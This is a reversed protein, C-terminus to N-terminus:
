RRPPYWADRAGWPHLRGGPPGPRSGFTPGSGGAMGRERIQRGARLGGRPRPADQWLRWPRYLNAPARHWPAQEDGGAGARTRCLQDVAAAPQRFSPCTRAVRLIRGRCGGTRTTARGVDKSGHGRETRSNYGSWYPVSLARITRHRWWSRDAARRITTVKADAAARVM